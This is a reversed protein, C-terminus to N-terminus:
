EDRGPCGQQIWRNAVVERFRVSHRGISVKLDDPLVGERLWRDVTRTTCGLRQALQPKTLLVESGLPDSHIVNEVGKCTTANAIQRQTDVM